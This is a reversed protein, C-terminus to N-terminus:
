YGKKKLWEDVLESGGKSGKGFTESKNDEVKGKHVIDFLENVKQAYGGIVETMIKKLFGADM